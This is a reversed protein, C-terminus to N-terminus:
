SKSGAPSVDPLVITREREGNGAVDKATEAGNNDDQPNRAAAAALKDLGPVPMTNGLLARLQDLHGTISDRQRILEDVQRQAARRNRDAEGKAESLVKDAHARAEAIVQDANRRANGVLSKAHEDADRRVAEAQEVAKSARQEAASARQEAEAVLQTAQAVAQDHREADLREAEERRAALKVELDTNM